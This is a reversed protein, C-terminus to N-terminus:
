FRENNEVKGNLSHEIPKQDNKENNQIQKPPIYCWWAGFFFIVSCVKAILALFLM